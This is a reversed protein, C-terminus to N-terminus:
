VETEGSQVDIVDDAEPPVEFVVRSSYMRGEAVDDPYNQANARALLEQMPLGCYDRAIPEFPRRRSADASERAAFSGEKATGIMKSEAGTGMLIERESRNITSTFDALQSTPQPKEVRTGPDSFKLWQVHSASGHLMHNVIAEEDDEDWGAEGPWFYTTGLSHVEHALGELTNNMRLKRAATWLSRLHSRGEANRGMDRAMVHLFKSAPLATQFPGVKGQSDIQFSSQLVVGVPSEKDGQIIWELVSWPARWELFPVWYPRPATDGPLEWSFERWVLEHLSFGYVPVTRIFDNLWFNLGTKEALTSTRTWERWCRSSLETQRAQALVHGEDNAFWPPVAEPELQYDNSTVEGAMDELPQEIIPTNKLEHFLGPDIGHGRAKLPHLLPNQELMLRGHSWPLGTWTESKSLDVEFRQGRWEVSDKVAALQIPRLWKVDIPRETPNVRPAPGIDPDAVTPRRTVVKTGHKSAPRLGEEEKVDEDM